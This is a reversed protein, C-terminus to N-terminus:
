LLEHIPESLQAFYEYPCRLSCAGTDTRNNYDKAQKILARQVGFFISTSLSTISRTWSQTEMQWMDTDTAGFEIYPRGPSGDRFMKVNEM